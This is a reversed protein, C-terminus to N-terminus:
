RWCILKNETSIRAEHHYAVIGLPFDSSPRQTAVWTYYHYGNLADPINIGCEMEPLLAEGGDM